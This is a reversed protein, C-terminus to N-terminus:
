RGPTRRTSSPEITSVGGSPLQEGPSRPPREAAVLTLQFSGAASEALRAIGILYSGEPYGYWAAVARGHRDTRACTIERQETRVVHRVVIAADLTDDAALRAVLAGRHPAEVTGSSVEAPV